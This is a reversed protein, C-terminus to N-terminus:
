GARRGNMAIGILFMCLGVVATAANAWAIETSTHNTFTAYLTLISPSLVGIGTFIFAARIM